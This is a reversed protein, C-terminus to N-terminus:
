YYPPYNNYDDKNSTYFLIFLILITLLLIGM